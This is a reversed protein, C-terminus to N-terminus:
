DANLCRRYEAELENKIAQLLEIDRSLQCIASDLVSSSEGYSIFVPEVRTKVEVLSDAPYSHDSLELRVLPTGTDPSLTKVSIRNRRPYVTWELKM